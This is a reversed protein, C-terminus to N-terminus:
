GTAQALAGRPAADPRGSLCCDEPCVDHSAPYVGIAPRPSGPAMREQILELIMRVFRLDNSATSARIFSVGLRDCLQKAEEDLDFLVEIHDSVFGIPHLIVDQLEGAAALREIRDCVDPELWPQTPPGSRSQYVMEWRGHRAAAATLRATETLQEVYRCCNAMATPISHACFLVAAQQRRETPILELRRQLEDSYIDILMPHNYPMRLKDIQPCGGGIENCADFLNERYQRCGSYCSYMSTFFAIARRVGDNRMRRLTDPLLPAWNRNGFYVPLHLGAAALEAELATVLERNQRNIPSIGGFHRYHEAVELMRERPVNRGRLVNELFPLVDEPGEPGGFSVWLVADYNNSAFDTM